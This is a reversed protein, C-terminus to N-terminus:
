QFFLLQFELLLNSVKEVVFSKGSSNSEYSVFGDDDVKSGMAVDVDDSDNDSSYRGIKSALLTSKAKRRKKTLRKKKAGHASSDSTDIPALRIGSVAQCEGSFNPPPKWSRGTPSFGKKTSHSRYRCSPLV